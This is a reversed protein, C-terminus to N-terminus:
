KTIKNSLSSVLTLLKSVSFREFSIQITCFPTNKCSITTFFYHRSVSMLLVFRFQCANWSRQVKRSIVSFSPWIKDVSGSLTQTVCTGSFLQFFFVFFFAFSIVRVFPGTNLLCILTSYHIYRQKCTSTWRDLRFTSSSCLRYTIMCFFYLITDLKFQIM